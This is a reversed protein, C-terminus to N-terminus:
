IAEASVESDATSPLVRFDRYRRRGYWSLLEKGCRLCAQWGSLRRGGDRYQFLHGAGCHPCARTAERWSM